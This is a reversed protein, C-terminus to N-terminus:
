AAEPTVGSTDVGIMDVQRPPHLTSRGDPWAIGDCTVVPTPGRLAHLNMAPLYLVMPGRGSGIVRGQLDIGRKAPVGLALRRLDDYHRNAWVLGRGRTGLVHLVGADQPGFTGPDRGGALTASTSTVRADNFPAALILERAERRLRRGVKSDDTALETSQGAMALACYLYDRVLTADNDSRGAVWMTGPTALGHEHMCPMDWPYRLLDTSGGATSVLSWFCGSGAQADGSVIERRTFEGDVHAVIGDWCLRASLPAGPPPPFVQCSRSRVLEHAVNCAVLAPDRVGQALQADVLRSVNGVGVAALARHSALARVTM